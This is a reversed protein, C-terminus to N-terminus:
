SSYNGHFTMLSVEGHMSSFNMHANRTALAAKRASNQCPAVRSSMLLCANGECLARSLVHLM